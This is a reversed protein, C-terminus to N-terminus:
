GCGPLFPLARLAGLRAPPALFARRADAPVRRHAARLRAQEPGAGLAEVMAELPLDGVLHEAAGVARERHHAEGRALALGDRHRAREGRGRGALLQRDLPLPGVVRAVARLEAGLLGPDTRG